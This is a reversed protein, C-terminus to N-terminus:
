RSCEVCSKTSFRCCFFSQLPTESRLALHGASYLSVTGDSADALVRVSDPDAAMPISRHGNFYLRITGAPTGSTVTVTFRFAYNFQNSVRPNTGFMCM